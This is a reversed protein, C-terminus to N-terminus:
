SKIPNSRRLLLWALMCAGITIASDAVNFVPWYFHPHIHVDLFDIVCGFMMRDVLNGLAGALILSLATRQATSAKKIQYLILVAALVTAAVFFVTQGKLIGFAAGRNYVLTLYFFNKIVPVPQGTQLSHVFFIKTLRDLVLIATVIFFVM